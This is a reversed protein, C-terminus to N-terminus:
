CICLCVLGTFLWRLVFCFVLILCYLCDDLCCLILCCCFGMYGCFLLIVIDLGLFFVWVLIFAFLVFWYRCYCCAFVLLCSAVLSLRLGVTAFCLCICVGFLAGLWVFLLVRFLVGIVTVYVVVILFHSDSCHVALLYAIRLVFSVCVFYVLLLVLVDVCASDCSNFVLLVVVYYCAVLLWDLLYFGRLYDVVCLELAFYTCAVFVFLM